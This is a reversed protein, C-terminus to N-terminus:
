KKEVMSLAEQLILRTIKENEHINAKDLGRVEMAVRLGKVSKISLEDAKRLITAIENTDLYGPKGIAMHHDGYLRNKNDLVANSFHIQAVQDKALTLAETIDEGNLAAHATDFALGVNKYEKKVKDILRVAEDTPGIIRKKHAFRDLPEVFVNMNYNSAEQAIECLSEYLGEMAEPRLADGPDEGTVFAINEAGCEAALYLSEKLQKVSEKRLKSNTSSVDLGNRDILFTLWQTIILNNSEKQTLIRNREDKEFGDGIEYSQYFGDAAFKEVLEATLGKTEKVPFYIEPILVSPIFRKNM